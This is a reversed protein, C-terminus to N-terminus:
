VLFGEFPDAGPDPAGIDILHQRFAAFDKPDQGAAVRQNRWDTLQAAINPNADSLAKPVDGIPNPTGVFNVLDVMTFDGPTAGPISPGFGPRRGLISQSDAKLLAFFVEAVIRSGVPGLHRGEGSIQAEKLIYYWLPTHLHLGHNAAAQGDPGTAIDNSSISPISMFQAVDQGSPLGFSRGRMLNRVSLKSPAPVNPVNQLTPALFPDLKRAFNISVNPSLQFFRRLDIVWDPPIPTGVGSGSRGSFFFLLGLTAPTVGGFNPFTFVRNYNYADRILSHGLRYAAASFEVPIFPYGQFQLFKAGNGNTFVDNFQDPDLIRRLFDHILIWQYHLSVQERADHFDNGGASLRMITNNRVGDVVKNHFQLFTRHLQAVILNEDNRPDGIIAFGNPGRPLDFVSPLVTPDGRGPNTSTSGLQFLAPDARQYLEPRVDPGPGYLSDLDFAATRFNQLALPDVEVEKLTSTDLTLDHDVFQGLYTFGAPVDPNNLAPDGPNTEFMASGLEELASDDPELAPLQPFM